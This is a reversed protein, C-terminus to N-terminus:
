RHHPVGLHFAPVVAGCDHQDADDGHSTGLTTGGIAGYQPILIMTGSAGTSLIGGAEVCYIKRAKPQNAYIPTYHSALWLAEATTAVLATLSAVPPDQAPGDSFEQEALLLRRSRAVLMAFHEGYLARSVAGYIPDRKM